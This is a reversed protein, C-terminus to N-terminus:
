VVELGNITSFRFLKCCRMCTRNGMPKSDLINPAVVVRKRWCKKYKSDVIFLKNGEKTLMARKLLNRSHHYGYKLVITKFTGHPLSDVILLLMEQFILYRLESSLRLKHSSNAQQVKKAPEEESESSSQPDYNNSGFYWAGEIEDKSGSTM